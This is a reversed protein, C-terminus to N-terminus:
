QLKQQLEAKKALLSDKVEGETTIKQALQTNNEKLTEIKKENAIISQQMNAIRAVCSEIDSETQYLELQLEAKVIASFCEVLDVLAPYSQQMSDFGEFKEAKESVYKSSFETGVKLAIKTREQQLESNSKEIHSLKSKLNSGIAINDFEDKLVKETSTLEQQKQLIGDSESKLYQINDLVSLISYEINEQYRIFDMKGASVVASGAKQMVSEKKKKVSNVSTTSSTLKVQNVLKGFFGQTEIQSKLVESQSELSEIRKDLETLEDFYQKFFEAYSERYNSYLVQGLELYAVDQKAKLEDLQKKTFSIEEQVNEIELSKSKAKEALLDNEKSKELSFKYKNLDEELVSSDNQSLLSFGIESQINQSKKKQETCIQKLESLQKLTASM